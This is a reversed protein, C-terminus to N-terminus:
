PRSSSAISEAVYSALSARDPLGLRTCARYVHSEVTRVSVHLRAAIERNSFGEAALIAVERERESVRLPVRAEALAPTTAGECRAALATARAAVALPGSARGEERAVVVAQAAADAAALDLGCAELAEAAAVLGTVDRRALAAAHAASAAARPTGLRRALEALPEAQDREGLRVALHRGALETARAGRRRSETVIQGARRVAEPRAGRNAAIWLRAVTIETDFVRVWGQHHRVATAVAAEAAATDGVLAHGQAIRGHLWSSWGGGHGPFAALIGTLLRVATRPRGTEGAVTGRFLGTWTTAQAGTLDDLWALRDQVADPTGAYLADLLEAFVINGLMVGTEPARRAADTGRAVIEHQQATEGGRFAVMYSAAWSAWCVAQSSLDDRRALALADDAAGAVDGGVGRVVARVVAPESRDPTRAEEAALLAMGEDHRDLIFFTTQVRVLFARMREDTSTAFEMAGTLATLAEEARLEWSLLFALSLHAEFGGGAEIAARLMREALRFDSLETAQRAAAVLLAADRPTDSDLDLVAHRLQDGARRAGTARLARSLEGRMRRARPVSLRGRAAEGYLPHGLRVESRVGDEHVAILGREAVREVEDAGGLAELMGLGLPEGLAVLQIVRREDDDLTGIRADILHELAPSLVPQGTWEWRGTRSPSLRGAAREGEVMYRLWLVNGLTVEHLRRSARADVPGGLAAELLAATVEEDLASIEVRAAVGDKWMATVADPCPAGARVTVVIRVARDTALQSLVAASSPDLMHADDVLLVSRAGGTRLTEATRALTAAEGEGPRVPELWHAFAGLPIECASASARAVRVQDHAAVRAVLERALRSKGVGAAGALVVAGDRELADAVVVLDRERGTFPWSGPSTPSPPM